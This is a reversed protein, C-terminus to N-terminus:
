APECQLSSSNASRIARSRSSSIRVSPGSVTAAKMASGTIPVPPTSGFNYLVHEFGASGLAVSAVVHLLMLGWGIFKHPVLVQIFVALVAILISFVTFPLVYWTLYHLLEFNTYGKAAQM